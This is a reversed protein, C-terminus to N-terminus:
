TLARLYRATIADQVRRGLPGAVTSLLGAPRSFARVTFRVAGDVGRELVFAEEGQEPHGPLTGYAFGRRDAEAVIRVVRCPATLGLFGLVVVADPAVALSSARVNLGARQHVRWHLLDEVAKDFDTHRPLQRTREFGRYGDPLTEYTTAGVESYTLRAARLAAAAASPLLRVVM